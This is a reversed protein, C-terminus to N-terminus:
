WGLASRGAQARVAAVDGRDAPADGPLRTVRHDHHARGRRQRLLLAPPDGVPRFGFRQYLLRAAQNSLRVELTAVRAGLDACLEMLDLMLRGGIGHRRWAPLVAFSTVHAEDVMLWVGGYGVLDGGIRAVLYHAMRNNELEQRFAYSPWPVPFSAREIAHVEDIDALTMPEVRLTLPLRAVVDGGRRAGRRPRGGRRCHRGGIGRPLAVYRPVLTAADALDGSGLREDLLELLAKPLGDCAVRGLAEPDPRGAARAADRMPALWDADAAVDVM